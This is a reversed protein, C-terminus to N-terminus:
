RAMASAIIASLPKHLIYSGDSFQYFKPVGARILEKCESSYPCKLCKELSRDCYDYIEQSTVTDKPATNKEEKKSMFYM